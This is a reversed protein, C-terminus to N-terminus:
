KWEGVGARWPAMLTDYHEQTILDRVTITVAGWVVGRAVGRAAYWVAGRGANRAANWAAGWAADRAADRDVSMRKIEDATLTRAREILAVVDEGNPGLVMWAPLEEVVRVGLVARKYRSAELGGVVEGVAEVRFLRAPWRGGILTEAPEVSVSLYTHPRNPVIKKSDPHMLVEGSALAAAYDLTDTHFDRGKPNTAKYLVPATQTEGESM